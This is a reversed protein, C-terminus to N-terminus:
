GEVEKAREVADEFLAVIMNLDNASRPEAIIERTAREDMIGAAVFRDYDILADQVMNAQYQALVRDPPENDSRSRIFASLTDARRRADFALNPVFRVADKWARYSGIAVVLVLFAAVALLGATLPKTALWGLLGVLGVGVFLSVITWAGRIGHYTVARAYQVVPRPITHQGLTAIYPSKSFVILAM